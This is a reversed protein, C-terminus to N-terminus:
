HGFGGFGTDLGARPGGDGHGDGHDDGYGHNDNHDRDHDHDGEGRGCVPSLKPEPKVIVYTGRGVKFLRGLDRVAKVDAIINKLYAPTTRVVKGTAPDFSFGAAVQASEIDIRGRKGPSIYQVQVEGSICTVAGDSRVLYETGRITAVGGPLNIDFRSPKSLKRQSGIIAGSKLNLTTETILQEGAVETNLKALELETGPTMRLATGSDEMVLDVTADDGTRLVAGPGLVADPQLARWTTHDTSYTALGHVAKVLVEGSRTEASVPSLFLFLVAFVAAIFPIAACRPNRFVSLLYTM